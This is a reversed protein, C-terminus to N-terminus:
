NEPDRNTPDLLSHGITRLRENVFFKCSKELPMQVHYGSLRYITPQINSARRRSQLLKKPIEVKTDVDALNLCEVRLQGNFSEVFGNQMTKGPTIYHWHVSRAERWQLIANSTLETSNDSVVMCPYGRIGAIRDLEWAVRVGSISNEPVTALCERSFDDIV